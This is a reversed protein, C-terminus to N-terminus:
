LGVEVGGSFISDHLELHDPTQGKPVDWVVVGSVSNGPNIDSLFFAGAKKNAMIADTSSSLKNSGIFLYQSSEDMTQSETGTNKVTMDAICFEGQAKAKLIGSGISKAGCTFKNVTFTFKGDSVPQGIGSLTAGSGQATTNQTTNNAAAPANKGKSGSLATALIILVIIALVWFWVKKYFPREAKSRAKAAALDSKAQKKADKSSQPTPTLVDAM